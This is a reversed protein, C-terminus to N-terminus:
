HPVARAMPILWIGLSSLARCLKAAVYTGSLRFRRILCTVAQRSREWGCVGCRERSHGNRGCFLTRAIFLLAHAKLFVRTWRPPRIAQLDFGNQFPRKFSFASKEYTKKGTAKGLMPLRSMAINIHSM